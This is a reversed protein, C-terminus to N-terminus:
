GSPRSSIPRSLSDFEGPENVVQSDNRKSKAENSPPNGAKQAAKNLGDTAKIATDSSAKSQKEAAKVNKPTM